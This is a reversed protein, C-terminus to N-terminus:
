TCGQAEKRFKVGAGVRVRVRVKVVRRRMRIMVREDADEGNM